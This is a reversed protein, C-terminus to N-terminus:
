RGAISAPGRLVSAQGVNYTLECGGCITINERNRTWARIPHQRFPATPLKLTSAEWYARADDPLHDRLFRDYRATNEREDAHGFFRFFSEHNPLHRAATLKLELLAIHAPNLDVAVIETPSAM